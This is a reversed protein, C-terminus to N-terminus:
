CKVCFYTDLLMCHKASMVSLFCFLQVPFFSVSYISILLFFFCVQNDSSLPVLTSPFEELLQLALGGDLKSCQNTFCHLSKVQVSSPVGSISFCLIFLFQVTVFFVLICVCLVSVLIHM